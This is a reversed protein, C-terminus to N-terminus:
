MRLATTHTYYPHLSMHTLTYIYTPIHIQIHIHTHTNKAHTRTGM